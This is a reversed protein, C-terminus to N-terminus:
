SGPNATDFTSNCSDNWPSALPPVRKKINTPPPRLSSPHTKMTNGKHTSDTSTGFSSKAKVPPNPSSLTTTSNSATLTTPTSLPPPSIPIPTDTPSIQQLLFPMSPPPFVLQPPASSLCSGSVYQTTWVEQSYISHTQMSHRANRNLYDLSPVMTLVGERHGGEGGCIAITPQTKSRPDLTWLRITHDKAATGIIYPHVPSVKLDYIEQFNIGNITFINVDGHGVFTAVVKQQRTNIIKVVGVGGAVALLPDKTTEDRTWACVCLEEDVQEDAKGAM